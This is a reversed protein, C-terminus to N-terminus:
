GNGLFLDKNLKNAAKEDTFAQTEGQKGATPFCFDIRTTRLGILAGLM